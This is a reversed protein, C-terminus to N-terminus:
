EEMYQTDIHDIHVILGCADCVLYHNEINWVEDFLHINKKCFYKKWFKYIFEFQLFSFYSIGYYSYVNYEDVWNYEAM